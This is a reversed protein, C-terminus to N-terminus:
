FTTEQELNHLFHAAPFPNSNLDTQIWVGHRFGHSTYSRSVGEETVDAGVSVTACYLHLSPKSLVFDTYKILPGANSYYKNVRVNALLFM